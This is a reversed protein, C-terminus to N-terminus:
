GPIQKEFSYGLGYETLLYIPHRPDAELKQRLHSIYVHVYETNDRSESWVNDLIQQYTLVQGANQALYVLLQYEIGSLKVPKGKVYIRHENWPITLYSDSYLPLEKPPSPAMRRLLAEARALLVQSGVPKTIYDDAGYDVLGRIIEEDQSLATLMILPVQSFQRIRRCIEWGDMEPLMLDLLVLDPQYAYFQRLAEPGNTATYVKAEAYGFILEILGLLRPDDDIILVKKGQM